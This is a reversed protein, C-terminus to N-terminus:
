RRRLALGGLVLLLLSAPEPTLGVNDVLWYMEYNADYYHFRLEADQGAYASLDITEHGAVDAGALQLLNVWSGGDVRIDVDGKEDNGGSYWNFEHDFHLAADAPITLMPTIMECDVNVSGIEDSDIAACEGAGGPVTNTRDYFTNTDWGGNGLNDVYAWTAPMGADFNESWVYVPPPQVETFTLDFDYAGEAGNYGDVALYYTGATFTGFVGSEDVFGVSNNSRNFTGDWTTLLSDLLYQDHDPAGTVNQAIDIVFDDMLTFQYVYEGGSEKYTSGVPGDYYDCNNALGTTDGLLNLTGASIIGLDQSVGLDALAPVALLAAGLGLALLKRM